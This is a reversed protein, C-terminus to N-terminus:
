KEKERKLIIDPKPQQPILLALHEVLKSWGQRDSLDYYHRVVLATDAVLGKLPVRLTDPWLDAQHPMTAVLWNRYKGSPMDLASADGHVLTLMRFREEKGVGRMLTDARQIASRAQEPDIEPPVTWIFVVNGELAGLSLTDGGMRLMSRAPLTDKPELEQAIRVRFDVGEKLYFWSIAPLGFLVLLAILVLLRSRWTTKGDPIFPDM